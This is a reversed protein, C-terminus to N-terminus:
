HAAAGSADLWVEITGPLHKHVASSDNLRSTNLYLTIKLADDLLTQIREAVDRDEPHYYRLDPRSPGAGPLPSAVVAYGVNSLVATATALINANASYLQVTVRADCDSRVWIEIQSTAAPNIASALQPTAEIRNRCSASLRGNTTDAVKRAISEDTSHFYKIEDPRSVEFRQAPVAEIGPVIFGQQTLETQLGLMPSYTSPAAYQIYVVRGQDTGVKGTGQQVIQRLGSVTHQQEKMTAELGQITSQDGAIRAELAGYRGHLEDAIGNLSTAKTLAGKANDLAHQANDQATKAITEAATLQANIRPTEETINAQIKMLDPATKLGIIVLAAVAIAIPIGAFFAFIRAWGMVTLATQQAIKLQVTDADGYKKQLLEQVESRVLDSIEAPSTPESDALNKGCNGCYRQQSSNEVGCKECTIM